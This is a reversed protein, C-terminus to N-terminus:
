QQTTQIRTSQQKTKVNSNAKTQTDPQNNHRKEKDDDAAVVTAVTQQKKVQKM